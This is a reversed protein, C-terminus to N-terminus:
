RDNHTLLCNIAPSSLDGGAILALKGSSAHGAGGM